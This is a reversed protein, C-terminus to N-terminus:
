EPKNCVVERHSVVVITCLLCILPSSCLAINTIIICKNNDVVFGEQETYDLIVKGGTYIDVVNYDSQALKERTHESAYMCCVVYVLDRVKSSQVFLM